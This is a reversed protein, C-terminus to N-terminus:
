YTNRSHHKVYDILEETTAPLVVNRHIGLLALQMFRTAMYRVSQRMGSRIWWYVVGLYAASLYNVVFAEPLPLEENEITQRLWRRGIHELQAQLQTIFVGGSRTSFMAQYFAAHNQVHKFLEIFPRQLADLDPQPNRRPIHIKQIDELVSQIIHQVLDYKDQYHLYFTARNLGACDTINQVTISELDQEKLLNLLADQLAQRTRRKRPDIHGESKSM